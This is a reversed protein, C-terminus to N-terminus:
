QIVLSVIIDVDENNLITKVDDIKEEYEGLSSGNRLLSLVRTLVHRGCTAISDGAGQYKNKNYVFSYDPHRKLFDKIMLSLYNLDQNLFKNRKLPNTKWLQGPSMGYSDFFEIKKNYRLLAVWHGTNQGRNEFLIVLYDKKKPLLSELTKGQLDEFLIIKDKPIYKALDTGTMPINVREM